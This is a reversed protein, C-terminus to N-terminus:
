TFCTPLLHHTALPTELMCLFPSYFTIPGLYSPSNLPLPLCTHPKADITSRTSDLVQQLSYNNNKIKTAGIAVDHCPTTNKNNNPKIFSQHQPIIICLLPGFQLILLMYLSANTHSKPPLMGSTAFIHHTLTLFRLSYRQTPCFTPVYHSFNYFIDM